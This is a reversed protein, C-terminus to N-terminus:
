YTKGTALIAAANGRVVAVSLQQRLWAVERIDKTKGRIRSGIESVLKASSKGYVGTTEIALPEFRYRDSLPSYHKKKHDEAANAAAGVTHSTLNIASKSFTDSLVHPMGAFTRAMLSLSAHSGMLGSGM